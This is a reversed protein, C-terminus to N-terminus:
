AYSLMRFVSIGHASLCSRLAAASTLPFSHWYIPFYPRACFCVFILRGPSLSESAQSAFWLLSWIDWSARLDSSM